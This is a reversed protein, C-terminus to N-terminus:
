QFERRVVVGGELKTFTYIAINSLNRVWTISPQVLWSDAFRWSLRLSAEGLEDRGTPVLTARAFEDDDIRLTYHDGRAREVTFSISLIERLHKRSVRDIEMANFRNALFILGSFAVVAGVAALGVDSM